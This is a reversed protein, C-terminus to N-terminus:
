RNNKGYNRKNKPKKDHCEKCLTIGNTLDWLEICSLAQDLTTINNDRCIDVFRKVHHAELCMRNKDQCEQCIFLDREFVQTRWESYKESERIIKLMPTLGGKWGTTEESPKGYNIHDKGKKFSGSNPKMIGKTGKNYPINKSFYDIKAESMKKRTKEQPSMGKNWSTIGKIFQGKENRENM